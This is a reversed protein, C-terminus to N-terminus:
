KKALENICNKCMYTKRYPILADKSGCFTCSDEHRKIIIGSYTAYIEVFSGEEISLTRRLEVPLVVRGLADIHRVIGTAKM